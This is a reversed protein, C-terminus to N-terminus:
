VQGTMKGKGRLCKLSVLCLQARLQLPFSILIGVTVSFENLNMNMKLCFKM